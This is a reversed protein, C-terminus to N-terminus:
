NGPGSYLAQVTKADRDSLKPIAVVRESFYMADKPSTSHGMIGLAHGVEHLAMGKVRDDSAYPTLLERTMLKITAGTLMGGTEYPVCEGGDGVKSFVKTTDTWSVRINATAPQDVFRFSVLGNSAAAWDQFATKVIDPFNDRYGHCGAGSAIYVSIPMRNSAWRYGDPCASAKYDGSSSNDGANARLIGVISKIKPVNADTPFKALYHDYCRIAEPNNGTSTYIAALACWALPNNDEISIGKLLHQKAEDYRGVKGLITGYTCQILALEPALEFAKTAAELSEQDKGEHLFQRSQDNLKDADYERKTITKGHDTYVMEGARVPSNFALVSLIFLIFIPRM